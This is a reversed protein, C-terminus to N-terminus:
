SFPILWNSCTNTPHSRLTAIVEPIKHPIVCPPHQTASSLAHEEQISKNADPGTGVHWDTTQFMIFSLFSVEIPCHVQSITFKRVNIAGCAILLFLLVNIKPMIWSNTCQNHLWMEWASLGKNCIHTNLNTITVALCLPSIPGREPCFILILLDWRWTQCNAEAVLNKNPNQYLKCRCCYCVSLPNWRHFTFYLKYPCLLPLPVQWFVCSSASHSSFICISECCEEDKLCTTTYSMSTKCIFWHIIEQNSCYYPIKISSKESLVDYAMCGSGRHRICIFTSLPWWPSSCQLLDFALITPGAQHLLL